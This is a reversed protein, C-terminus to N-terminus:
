AGEALYGRLTQLNQLGAEIGPRCHSEITVHELLGDRELARIQGAWDVLGEGIRKWVRRGGEVAVDKAHVNFIFRKVTEYGGPFAGAAESLLNGPDWNAGVRVCGIDALLGAIAEPTDFHHGAENEVAVSVRRGDIADNLQRLVNVVERPANPEAEFSFVILVPVECAEMFDLTRPLSEAFVRDRHVTDGIPAKFYGPSVATYRIGYEDRMAALSELDGPALDPFRRGHVNRLEFDHVDWALATEIAERPDPSLEDTVFGFRM